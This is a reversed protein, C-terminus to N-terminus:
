GDENQGTDVPPGGQPEQETGQAQMAAMPDPPNLMKEKRLEDLEEIYDLDVKPFLPSEQARKRAIEAATAAGMQEYITDAQATQHYQNVLEQISPTEVAPFVVKLGDPVASMPGGPAALLYRYLKAIAPGLVLSQESAVQQNWNELDSDGTANLGAPARGFLLSAPINASGSVRLMASDVVNSAQSLSAEVRTYDEEQDLVIARYASKSTNILEFRKALLESNESALLDLLAKVRYVPVSQENLTHLTSDFSMEFQRLVGYVRHLVSKGWGRDHYQNENTTRVGYFPVVRSHHVLSEVFSDTRPDLMDNSNFIRTRMKYVAVTGFEKSNPDSYWLEGELETSPVPRLFEVADGMIAASEVDGPMGMLVGGGGYLRSWIRARRVAETLGYESEAWDRVERRETDSSGQWDLEYGSRLADHVIREVITAAIDDDTYLEELTQQDLDDTPVFYGSTFKDYVYGAGTLSSVFADVNKIFNNEKSM